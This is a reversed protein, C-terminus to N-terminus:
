RPPGFDSRTPPPMKAFEEPLNSFLTSADFCLWDPGRAVLPYKSTSKGQYVIQRFNAVRAPTPPETWTRDILQWLIRDGQYSENPPRRFFYAYFVRPMHDGYLAGLHSTVLEIRFRSGPVPTGRRFPFRSFSVWYVPMNTWYRMPPLRNHNTLLIADGPLKRAFDALISSESWGMEWVYPDKYARDTHARLDERTRLCHLWVFFGVVVCSVARIWAARDAALALQLGGAISLGLVLAYFFLAHRMVHSHVATHQLMVCWWSISCLFLVCILRFAPHLRRMSRDLGGFLVGWALALACVPVLGIGYFQGFRKVVHLPYNALTVDPPTDTAEELSITRRLFDAQLGGGTEKGFAVSRQHSQIGFALVPALAFVLLWRKKFPVGILLAYGWYFAQSWLYWEWSMFANVFQLLWSGAMLALRKRGDAALGAIFCLMMGVVLANSYGHHVNDAYELFGWSSGLVVASALAAWRGVFRCLLVYWLALTVLACITAPWRLAPFTQAGLDFLAWMVYSAGLPYEAYFYFPDSKFPPRDVQHQAVGDYKAWGNLAANRASVIMNAESWSDSHVGLPNDARVRLVILVTLCLLVVLASPVLDSRSGIRGAPRFLSDDSVRAAASAGAVAPRRSPAQKRAM